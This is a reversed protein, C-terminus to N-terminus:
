GGRNGRNNFGGRNNTNNNTNNFAPRRPASSTASGLQIATTLRQLEEGALSGGPGAKLARFNDYAEPFTAEVFLDGQRQQLISTLHLGIVLCAPRPWTNLLYNKEKLSPTSNSYLAPSRAISDLEAKTATTAGKPRSTNVSASPPIPLARLREALEKWSTSVEEPTFGFDSAASRNQNNAGQQQQQQQQQPPAPQQPHQELHELRQHLTTIFNLLQQAPDQQQQQQQQQQGNDM